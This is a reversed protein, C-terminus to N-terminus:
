NLDDMTGQNNIAHAKAEFDRSLLIVEKKGRINIFYL